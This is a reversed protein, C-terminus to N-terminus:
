MVKFTHKAIVRGTKKDKASFTTTGPAIPKFKGTTAGITAVKKNSVAFTVSSGSVKLTYSQGTFVKQPVAASSKQVIKSAALATNPVLQMLLM